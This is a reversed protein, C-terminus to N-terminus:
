GNEKDAKNLKIIWDYMEEGLMKRHRKRAKDSQKWATLPLMHYYILNAIDVRDPYPVNLAMTYFFSDYAGVNNHYYYHCESDVEGNPKVNTKTFPKGVDHLLGALKLTPDHPFNTNLSNYVAMCHDGITRKHHRNGQEIQCANVKGHFFEDLTYERFHGTSELNYILIISNFGERTSPPQFSTYMKKMVKDPVTRSRKSNREICDEYPALVPVCIKECDINKLERLFAARRKKSLNTADYIVDIGDNLDRKIRKHLEEFLIDNKTQEGVDNFLEKRLEDSSHIVVKRDNEEGEKQIQKAVYSKGCAPIGMLMILSTKLGTEVLM